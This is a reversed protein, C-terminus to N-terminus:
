NSQSNNVSQESNNTKGYSKAQEQRQQFKTINDTELQNLSNNTQLASNGKQPLESAESNSNLPQYRWYEQGHKDKRPLGLYRQNNVKTILAGTIKKSKWSLIKLQNPWFFNPDEALIEQLTSVIIDKSNAPNLQNM